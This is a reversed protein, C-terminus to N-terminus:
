DAEPIRYPLPLPALMADGVFLQSGLASLQIVALIEHGEEAQAGRVVQGIRSGDADVVDNGPDVPAPSAFRFMRRKIRGLNHTRAVVEQGVYCGKTFSIGSVLDLNVMQPVFAEKTPGLVVPLGARVDALEWAGAARADTEIVTSGPPGALLVRAPDGIVRALCREGDTAAVDLSASLALDDFTAAAEGMNLGAVHYQPTSIEAEARLLFLQLRAVTADILERPLILWTAKGTEVAQGVALLRGKPNNWGWLRTQTPSLETLDQTLQGQLFEERDKGAVCVVGLHELLFPEM